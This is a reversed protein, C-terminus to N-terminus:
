CALCCRATQAMTSCALSEKRWCEIAYRDATCSNVGCGATASVGHGCCQRKRSSHAHGCEAAADSALHSFPCGQSLLYECMSKDSLRAAASMDNACLARLGPLQQLCQVIAVCGSEIASTMGADSAWVCRRCRNNRMQGKGLAETSGLQREQTLYEFVDGHASAATGNVLATSLTMGLEEAQRLTPGESDLGANYQLQEIGYGKRRLGCERALRLRSPSQFAASAVTRWDCTVTKVRRSDGEIFLTESSGM